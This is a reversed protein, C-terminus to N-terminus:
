SGRGHKGPLLGRPRRMALLGIAVLALSVPEPVSIAEGSLTFAQNFRPAPSGGVIDTGIRLWDPSLNENRIWSQLDPAFATGPPVIPQPSSLWLFDGGVVKVQPVFFYHDAPLDLPTAFMLSFMVESGTVPGEGGTMQNPSKNIGNVVSNQASFSGSLVTTAFTLGATSLQRADFAVDSPSNARTPVNGSPPSASDKPFVRYIEVRIDSISSLPVGNTLLGTFTAGTIRTKGAIVFDDATETDVPVPGLRALAAMKGDPTGSSFFYPTAHASAGHLALGIGILRFALYTSVRHHNNM